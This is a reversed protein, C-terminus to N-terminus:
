TRSQIDRLAALRDSVASGGVPDAARSEVVRESSLATEDSYKQVRELLTEDTPPVEGEVAYVLRSVEAAIDNLKERLHSQEIRDTDWDAMITAEVTLVKTRFYARPTLPTLRLQRNWGVSREAAIRAGGSIAAIMAGYGAMGVMYYLAFDIKLGGPLDIMTGKNSGGIVLFLALPFGLSFIFFRKNRWLRLLEYRAYVVNASM